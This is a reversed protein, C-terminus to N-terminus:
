GIGDYLFIWASLEAYGVVSRGGGDIFLLPQCVQVAMSRVPLRVVMRGDAGASHM